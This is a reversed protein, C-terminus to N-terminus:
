WKNSRDVIFYWPLAVACMIIGAVTNEMFFNREIKKGLDVM